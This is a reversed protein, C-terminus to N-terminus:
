GSMLQSLERELLHGDGLNLEVMRRLIGASDLDIGVCRLGVLRGDVHAVEGDMTIGPMQEDLLIHAQALTGIEPAWETDAQFLLGRFSIDLVTGNRRTDGVRVTVPKDTAVRHFRRREDTTEPM